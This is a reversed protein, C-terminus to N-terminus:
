LGGNPDYKGRTYATNTRKNKISESMKAPKPAKKTKDIYPTSTKTAPTALGSAWKPASAANAARKNRLSDSMTAPVPAKAKVKAAAKPKAAAEKAQLAAKAKMKKLTGSSPTHVKGNITVTPM